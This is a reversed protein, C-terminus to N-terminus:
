VLPVTGVADSVVSRMTFQPNARHPASDCAHITRRRELTSSLIRHKCIGVFVVANRIPHAARGNRLDVIWSERRVGQVAEALCLYRHRKGLGRFQRRSYMDGVGEGAMRGYSSM